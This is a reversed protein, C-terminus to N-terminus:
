QLCSHYFHQLYVAFHQHYQRPLLGARAPSGEELPSRTPSLRCLRHRRSPSRTPSLNFIWAMGTYKDSCIRLYGYMDIYKDSTSIQCYGQIDMCIWTSIPLGGLTAWLYWPYGRILMSKSKEPFDQVSPYALYGPIDYFLVFSVNRYLIRFIKSLLIKM